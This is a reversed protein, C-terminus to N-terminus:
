PAPHSRNCVKELGVRVADGLVRNVYVPSVKGTKKTAKNHFPAQYAVQLGKEEIWAALDRKEVSARKGKRPEEARPLLSCIQELQEVSVAVLEEPVYIIKSWRHPRETTDDGKCAKTGYLKVIRSPNFTTRDVQVKDTSFRFDLAALCDQLLTVNEATNLIDLYFLLHYGNGSSAMIPEPFGRESLYAQIEEAKERARAHEEETSSIGAARVPDLDILLFELREIDADTTTQKAYPELRNKYRALLDRKVPNLSMYIDYKGIYPTVAEALKQSDDFYGSITRKSTNLIRVESVEGESRLLDITNMIEQQKDVSEM